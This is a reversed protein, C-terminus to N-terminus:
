KQKSKVVFRKQDELRLFTLEKGWSCGTDLAIINSIDTKGELAAWHGFVLLDVDNMIKNEKKFWPALHSPINKKRGKFSFDPLGNKCIVRVRTFFNVLGSFSNFNLCDKKDDFIKKLSKKPNRILELSCLMSLTEANKLTMSRPIGAHVMAVKIVKKKTLIKKSFVFPQQILFKAMKFKKKHFMLPQFTDNDGLKKNNFFCNLYHLDHNGLVIHVSSKIKMVHELVKLSDPGRNILDGTIWLFDKSSKFNILELGDKLEEFCGQIDGVVYNAM